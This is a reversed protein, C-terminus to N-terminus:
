LGGFLLAFFLFNRAPEWPTTNNFGPQDGLPLIISVQSTGLSNIFYLNVFAFGDYSHPFGYGILVYEDM